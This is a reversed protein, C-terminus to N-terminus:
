SLKKLSFAYLKCTRSVVANFPNEDFKGDMRVFKHDKDQHFLYHIFKREDGTIYMRDVFWGLAECGDAIKKDSTAGYKVFLGSANRQSYIVFWNPPESERLSTPRPLQNNENGEDSSM